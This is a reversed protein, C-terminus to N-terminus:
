LSIGNFKKEQKVILGNRSSGLNPYFLNCSAIEFDVLSKILTSLTINLHISRIQQQSIYMRM